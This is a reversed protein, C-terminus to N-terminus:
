PLAVVARTGGGHQQVLARAITLGLGSGRPRTTVGPEFALARVEDALGAGRDLVELAGDRGVVEVSSGPPAADIANQVLNVLVQRLKRRDARVRVGGATGPQSGPRSSTPIVTVGRSRGVGDCLTAVEECLEDLDVDSQTLPVLPRSFDLFEELTEQMRDVEARLVALREAAKGDLDRALLSSLGKISALPNKLEHAIEASLAVLERAHDAHAVRERDHAALTGGVTKAVRWRVTTGLIAGGLLMGTIATAETAIWLPGHGLPGFIDLTLPFGSLSLAAAGWVVGIQAGVVAVQPASAGFMLSTQLAAMPLVPLAPSDLGGTLIVATLQAYMMGVLNAAFANPGSWGRRFRWYEVGFLVVVYTTLAIALVVRWPDPDLWVATMVITFVIPVFKLRAVVIKGFLAGTMERQIADLDRLPEAM